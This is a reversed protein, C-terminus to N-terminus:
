LGALGAVGGFVLAMGLLQIPALPEKLIARALIVTVASFASSVVVAFAPDPLNGAAFISGIAAVDLGGILALLPLWRAPFEARPRQLLYIAGITVFGFIRSLWVATVEGFIPVAAQGTTQAVASGLSAFFALALITKLKGTPIHGSDEYATGCSSVIAAGAMVAAIALWQMVSPRTGQTVAFIMSLAPYTGAIPAVLSVPGLALAAFLSLTALALFIGSAAPLWLLPWFIRVIDGSLVLWASLFVFGAFTVALVTPIPGVTRAPFRALFDNVGWSLAAVLGLLASSM